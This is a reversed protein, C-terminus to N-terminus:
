GCCPRFVNAVFDADDAVFQMDLCDVGVRDFAVIRDELAPHLADVLMALLFMEVPIERLEVEAVVM